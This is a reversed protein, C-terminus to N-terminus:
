SNLSEPAPPRALAAALLAGFLLEALLLAIITVNFSGDVVIGVARGIALGILVSLAAVGAAREAQPSFGSWGLFVAFGIMMGGYTARMDTLASATQPFTGTLLHAVEVPQFLFATGFVAFLVANVRLLTVLPM